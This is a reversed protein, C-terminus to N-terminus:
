RCAPLGEKVAPARPTSGVYIVCTVATGPNTMIATWGDGTLTIRVTNGPSPRYPLHSVNATYSVSDAFFVEEATVLNRLDSKMAAVFSAEDVPAEPEAIEEGESSSHEHIIKWEGQVKQFVLTIAAREPPSQGAAGTTITYSGLAMAYGPGLPTVDVSGLTVKYTGETGIFEDLAERIRDWGRVIEGNGVSTVGPQKSYMEAVTGFDAQNVADIYARVAQQVERRLTAAPSTQASLWAPALALFGLAPLVLKM